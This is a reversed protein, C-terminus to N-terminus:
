NAGSSGFSFYSVKDCYIYGWHCNEEGSNPGLVQGQVGRKPRKIFHGAFRGLRQEGAKYENNIARVKKARLAM